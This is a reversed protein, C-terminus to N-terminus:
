LLIGAALHCLFPLIPIGGKQLGQLLVLPDLGQAHSIALMVFLPLWVINVEQDFSFCVVEWSFTRGFIGLRM